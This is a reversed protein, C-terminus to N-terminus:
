DPSALLLGVLIADSVWALLLQVGAPNGPLWVTWMRPLIILLVVLVSRVLPSPVSPFKVHQRAKM